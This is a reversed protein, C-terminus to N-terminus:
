ETLLTKILEQLEGERGFFIGAHVRDFYTLGLYPPGDKRVDWTSRPRKAAKACLQSMIFDNEELRDPASRAKARLAALLGRIPAQGHLLTSSYKECLALLRNAVPRPGEQTDLDHWIAHGRLIGGLLAHRWDSKEWEPWSCLLEGLRQRLETRM